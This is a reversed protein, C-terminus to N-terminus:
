KKSSEKEKSVIVINVRRNKAKNVESNNQAIPRYEGYGAATFRVPNQKKTEVFYRLVNVARATSLEWNSGYVENKIPVNDTHGEVIVENPLTAILGNIKDMIQKSEPKIDARGIEFLVNDRLQIIVGRGDEKVEVSSKLNNKDVFKNVENYVEKSDSKADSGTERGLKTTEGVLPVDGNKLNYDVITNGSQGTMAVQMASAVQQFKQADVSSFSYLLIFFTLLLTITDSFTALWEDGRIEDGGGGKKNRRAM